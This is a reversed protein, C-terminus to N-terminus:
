SRHVSSAVIGSRTFSRRRSVIWRITLSMGLNRHHSENSQRRRELINPYRRSVRLMTGKDARPLDYLTEHESYGHYQPKQGRPSRRTKRSKPKIKNGSWIVSRMWRWRSCHKPVLKGMHFNASRKFLIGYSLNKEFHTLTHQHGFAATRLVEQHFHSVYEVSPESERQKVFALKSVAM